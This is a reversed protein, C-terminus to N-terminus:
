NDSNVEEFSSVNKLKNRNVWRNIFENNKRRVKIQVKKDGLKVVEAPITHVDASDSRAKYLWVVKQGVEFFDSNSVLSPLTTAWSPLAIILSIVLVLVVLSIQFLKM